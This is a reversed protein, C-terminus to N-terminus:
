DIVQELWWRGSALDLYIVCFLGSRTHLRFYRRWGAAPGGRWWGEVVEWSAEVRAVQEARGRWYLRCPEGTAAQAIVEVPHAPVFRRATM